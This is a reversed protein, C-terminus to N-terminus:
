RNSEKKMDKRRKDQDAKSPSSWWEQVPTGSRTLIEKMRLDSDSLQGSLRYIKIVVVVSSNEVAFENTEFEIEYKFGDFKRAAEKSMADSNPPLPETLDVVKRGPLLPKGAEVRSPDFDNFLIGAHMRAHNYIATIRNNEVRMTQWRVAAVFTGLISSAGIALITMAIMVELLTFGKQARTPPHM